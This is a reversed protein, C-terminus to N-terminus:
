HSKKLLSLIQKDFCLVNMRFQKAFYIVCYDVCGMKKKEIAALAFIEKQEGLTIPYIMVKDTSGLLHLVREATQYGTKYCVVTFVEELVRDLVILPSKKHKELLRVAKEHQTDNLLFLSVLFSSDLIM